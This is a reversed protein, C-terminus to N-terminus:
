TEYKIQVTSSHTSKIRPISNYHQNREEIKNDWKHLKCTILVSILYINQGVLSM